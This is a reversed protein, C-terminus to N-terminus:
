EDETEQESIYYKERYKPFAGYYYEFDAPVNNFGVMEGRTDIGKEQQVFIFTEPFWDLLHPHYLLWDPLEGSLFNLNIRLSKANPL